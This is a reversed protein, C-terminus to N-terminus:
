AEPPTPAGQCVHEPAAKVKKGVIHAAPRWTDGVKVFIEGSTPYLCGVIDDKNWDDESGGLAYREDVAFGVFSAGERDKVPAEDLVRVRREAPPMRARSFKSRKEESRKLPTLLQKKVAVEIEGALGTNATVDNRMPKKAVDGAFAVEAILMFSLVLPLGFKM